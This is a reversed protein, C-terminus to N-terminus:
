TIIYHMINHQFSDLIQDCNISTCSIFLTNSIMLAIEKVVLKYELNVVLQKNNDHIM